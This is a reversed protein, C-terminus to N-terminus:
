GRWAGSRLSREGYGGMEPAPRCRMSASPSPIRHVSPNGSSDLVWCALHDANLDVGLARSRRLEDLSPPRIGRTQWSADLYWRNRNPQYSIDYRVSGNTAQAAWEDRRYSFTVPCQLRYTCARGPTNSLGAMPTPFRLEMWRQEPHVRITENGRRWRRDSVVAQGALHGVM